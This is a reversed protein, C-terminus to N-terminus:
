AAGDEHEGSLCFGCAVIPVTMSCGCGCPCPLAPSPLPHPFSSPAVIDAPDMGRDRARKRAMRLRERERYEPNAARWGAHYANRYEQEHWRGGRSGPGTPTNRPSHPWSM